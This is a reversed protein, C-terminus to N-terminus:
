LQITSVVSVDIKEKFQINNNSFDVVQVEPLSQFLDINIFNINNNSLDLFELKLFQASSKDGAM